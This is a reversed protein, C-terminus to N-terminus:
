KPQWSPSSANPILRSKGAGGPAMTWISTGTNTQYTYAIRRGNPSWVPHNFQKEPSGAGLRKANTGDANVRWVSHYDVTYVLVKGNPSWDPADATQGAKSLKRLGSGDPRVTYLAYNADSKPSYTIALRTGSPSWRASTVSGAAKALVRKRGTGDRKISYYGSSGTAMDFSSYLLTGNPHWSAAGNLGAPVVRRKGSGDARMAWIEWDHYGEAKKQYAIWRGDASFAPSMNRGKAVIKGTGGSAPATGIAGARDFAIRGNSGPFAAEASSAFGTLVALVTALLLAIFKVRGPLAHAAPPM